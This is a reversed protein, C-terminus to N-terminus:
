SSSRTTMWRNGRGIWKYSWLLMKMLKRKMMWDVCDPLCGHLGNGKGRKKWMNLRVLIQARFRIWLIPSLILLSSSFLHDYIGRESSVHGDDDDKSHDKFPFPIFQLSWIIMQLSISGCFIPPLLSLFLHNLEPKLNMINKLMENGIRAGIELMVKSMRLEM